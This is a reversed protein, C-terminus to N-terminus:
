NWLNNPYEGNNVMKLIANVLDKKDEKYTVGHWKSDTNLVKVLVNNNNIQNFVSEPLLFECNDLNDKNKDFFTKMEDELLNFISPTFGFFNMSVLETKSIEFVNKSNELETAILKNDISEIKSEILKILFGNKDKKCIGRKVSGNETLTNGAEYGIVAYEGAKKESSYFNKIKLFPDLGYFDDSNIVVFPDDVEDKASLIAHSTGWPKIRTKPIIVGVPVNNIDQFVYKVEIKSEIRKGITNRFVEFNEKKIIFVVKKFGARIADYISYDIIFEGNPGVPEIQKLGGFRSGMGAAMIVLTM